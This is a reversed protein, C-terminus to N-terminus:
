DTYLPIVISICEKACEGINLTSLFFQHLTEILKESLNGLIREQFQQKTREDIRELLAKTEVDTYRSLAQKAECLLLATEAERFSHVISSEKDVISGM